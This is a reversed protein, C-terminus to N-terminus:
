EEEAPSAYAVILYAILTAVLLAAVIPIALILPTGLVTSFIDSLVTTPDITVTPPPPLQPLQPIQSLWLDSTSTSTSSTVIANMGSIANLTTCSRPSINKEYYNDQYSNKTPNEYQHQPVHLLQRSVAARPAFGDVLQVVPVFPHLQQQLLSVLVITVVLFPISTRGLM